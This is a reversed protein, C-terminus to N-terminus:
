EETKEETKKPDAHYVQLYVKKRESTLTHDLYVCFGENEFLEVVDPAYRTGSQARLEELLTRFPKATNYCRGINDTAADISDAVTLADVIGKIEAPCPQVGTPYGGKGDYFCHHYLAAPALTKGYGVQELMNSGIRPHSQICYFEEDLLRRANNDIYMIVASKGFDHYLGCEYATRCLEKRRAQVEAADRCGLLGVLHEPSCEILRQVLTRTLWAVMLSHVYTPKHGVLISGLMRRTETEDSGSSVMTLEWAAYSVVRPYQSAPMAELYRHAKERIQELAPRYRVEEEPTLFRAYSLLYAAATLNHYLGDVSFDRDDALTVVEMLADLLDTVSGAGAHFRAAYYFYSVRWNQLRAEEKKDKKQHEWVYEASKLVEQALERDDAICLRGMLTLRDMHMSYIYSDWPFEPDLDRYYSSNFIGMAQDFLCLYKRADEYSRRSMGLRMNGICRLIYQRTTKDLQEYQRIYDAGEHFFVQIKDGLLNVELDEDRVNMYHLTVGNLYLEKVIMPVDGRSRAAELLLRHVRHSLAVDESNSYYFLKGAFAELAAIEEDSLSEPTRDYIYRQLLANNEQMLAHCRVANNQIRALVERPETGEPFVPKSLTRVTRLNRIYQEFQEEQAAGM